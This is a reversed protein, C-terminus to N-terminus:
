SPKSEARFGAGANDCVECAVVSDVVALSTAARQVDIITPEDIDRCRGGCSTGIGFQIHRNATEAPQVHCGSQAANSRENVDTRACVGLWNGSVHAQKVI